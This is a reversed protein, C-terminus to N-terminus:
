NKNSSSTSLHDARQEYYLYATATHKHSMNHQEQTTTKTDGTDVATSVLVYWILFM